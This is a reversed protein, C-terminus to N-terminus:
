GDYGTRLRFTLLAKTFNIFFIGMIKIIILDLMMINIEWLFM